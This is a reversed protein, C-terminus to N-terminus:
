QEWFDPPILESDYPTCDTAGSTNKTQLKTPYGKPATPQVGGRCSTAGGEPNPYYRTTEGAKRVGSIWRNEELSRLAYQITRESVGIHAAMKAVSEYCAGKKGARRWVHALLRFEVATLDADDLWAPIFPAQNNHYM